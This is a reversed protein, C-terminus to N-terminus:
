LADNGATRGTLEVHRKVLPIRGDRSHSFENRTQRALVFPPSTGVKRYSHILLVIGFSHLTQKWTPVRNRDQGPGSRRRSLAALPVLSFLGVNQRQSGPPFHTYTGFPRSLICDWLYRQDYAIRHKKLLALFEEQFPM